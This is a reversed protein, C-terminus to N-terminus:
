RGARRGRCALESLLASEEAARVARSRAVQRTRARVDTARYPPPTSREDALRVAEVVM